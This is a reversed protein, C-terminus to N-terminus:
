ADDAPLVSDGGGGGLKEGAIPAKAGPAGEKRTGDENFFKPNYGHAIERVTDLQDPFKVRTEAQYQVVATHQREGTNFQYQIPFIEGGAKEIIEIVTSLREEFQTAQHGAVVKVGMRLESM